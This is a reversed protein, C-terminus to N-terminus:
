YDLGGCRVFIHNAVDEHLRRKAQEDEPKLTATLDPSAEIVSSTVAKLAEMAPSHDEYLHKQPSPGYKQNLTATAQQTITATAEDLATQDALNQILQHHTLMNKGDHLAQFATLDYGVFLFVEKLAHLDGHQITFTNRTQKRPFHNLHHLVHSQMHTTVTSTKFTTTALARAATLIRQIDTAASNFFTISM